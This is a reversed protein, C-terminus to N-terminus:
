DIKVFLSLTKAGCYRYFLPSLSWGLRITRIIFVRVINILQAASEPQTIPLEFSTFRASFQQLIELTFIEFGGFNRVTRDVAKM